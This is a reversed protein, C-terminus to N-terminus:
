CLLHSSSVEALTTGRSPTSTDKLLRPAAATCGAPTPTPAGTTLGPGPRSWPYGAELLQVELWSQGTRVCGNVSIPFVALVKENVYLYFCFPCFLNPLGPKEGIVIQDFTSCFVIEKIRM